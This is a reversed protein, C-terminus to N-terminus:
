RKPFPYLSCVWGSIFGLSQTLEPFLMTSVSGHLLFYSQIYPLQKLHAFRSGPRSFPHTSMPLAQAFAHTLAMLLSIFPQSVPRAPRPDGLSSSMHAHSSRDPDLACVKGWLLVWCWPDFAEYSRHVCTDAVCPGAGELTVEARVM